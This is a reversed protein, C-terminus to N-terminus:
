SACCRGTSCSCTLCARASEVGCHEMLRDRLAKRARHVRVTANNESIGLSAAMEAIPEDGLTVRELAERYEPKLTGMLTMSCTCTEDDREPEPAPAGEAVDEVPIERVDRADSLVNRVITYLWARAKEPERLGSSRQLARVASQQLVDEALVGAPARREIFRLFESRSETLLREIAARSQASTESPNEESM